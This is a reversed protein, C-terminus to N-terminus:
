RRRRGGTMRLGHRCLPCHADRGLWEDICATHFVHRCPLIRVRDGEEFDALCVTCQEPEEGPEQTSAEQSWLSEETNELASANLRARSRQNQAEMIRDAIEGNGFINTQLLLMQIGPPVIALQRAQDPTLLEAASPHLQGDSFIQTNSGVRCTIGSPEAAVVKFQVGNHTFTQGEQLCEAKHSAFFPKVYDRFVDFNYASPLTDSFPVVHILIFEKAPHLRTFIETRPDVIGWGQGEPQIASIDFHV